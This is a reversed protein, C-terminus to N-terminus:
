DEKEFDFLRSRIAVYSPARLNYVTKFTQGDISISGQDTDLTVKSTYGGNSIDVDVDYVEEYGKGYKDAKERMEDLSYPDGGWCSTTVPSIHDKESGSGNAWVIYANVIDAMEEEDLWPHDRGCTSGDNYSKTYWAKRFWPSGGEKEYADGPWCGDDGCKTDWGRNDIYGGATSSYWGYGSADTSGDIIEDETDDVADKWDGPPNDSKSKSFVQCGQDVCICLDKKAYRYAYSRGAVAQAKLAEDDWTSPMEALGYLYKQFDMNGYGQVCIKSPFDGKEKVDEGYYFKIIDEYDKGKEARGRAGYQSMGKYHTYAGYSFAAYAPKFPPNPTDVKTAEYDGVSGTGTGYKQNLIAQQKSSLEAIETELNFLKEEYDGETNELNGYENQASAKKNDLDRKLTYLQNQTGELEDKINQAELKDEEFTDIESNLIYIWKVADESLYKRIMYSNSLYQFGGLNTNFPSFSFFLELDNKISKKSYNRIVQDRFKIKDILRDRRDTLNERIIDLEASIEDIQAQLEDIQAQTVNLESQYQSITSSIQNKKKRIDDLKKSTSEYEDQKDEIKNAYCDARDDLDEIESCGSYVSKSMFFVLSSISIILLSTKIFKRTPM